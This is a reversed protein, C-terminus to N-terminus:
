AVEVSKGDAVRAARPVSGQARRPGMPRLGDHHRRPRQQGATAEGARPRRRRGSQTLHDTRVIAEGLMRGIDYGAVGLPGAATRAARSGCDCRAAPQRRQGHRRVGLRGVVAALGEARLRVHACLQGRGARALRRADVAVAVTRAAVGLGLYVLGDPKSAALRDVLTPPRRPSRPSPAAPRSRSGPPPARWSSGTPTTRTRRALPRPRGGRSRRRTVAALRRARGAGRRALRGPLPVHVRQPHDRRGHLQHVAAGGRRRPRARGLRQGLDVARRDRARRTARAVAFKQEVDLATGAPLGAALERVLEVPRDLTSADVLGLEVATAFSDGGDHQPFDFLLGIRIPAASM